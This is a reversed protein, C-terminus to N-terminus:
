MTVVFWVRSQGDGGCLQTGWTAAPHAGPQGQAASAGHSPLPPSSLVLQGTYPSRHLQRSELGLAVVPDGQQGSAAGM